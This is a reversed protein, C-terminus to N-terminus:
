KEVFAERMRKAADDCGKAQTKKKKLINKNYNSGMITPKFTCQLYQGVKPLSQRLVSERDNLSDIRKLNTFDQSQSLEDSRKQREPSPSKNVLDKFRSQTKLSKENIKPKFTCKLM